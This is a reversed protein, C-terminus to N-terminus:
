AYEAFVEIFTWFLVGGFMTPASLTCLPHQLGGELLPPPTYFIRSFPGNRVFTFILWWFPRLCATIPALGSELWVLHHTVKIHEATYRRFVSMPSEFKSDFGSRTPPAM